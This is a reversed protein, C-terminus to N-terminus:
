SLTELALAAQLALNMIQDYQCSSRGTSTSCTQGTLQMGVRSPWTRASMGSSTANFASSALWSLSCSRVVARQLFVSTLAVPQCMRCQGACHLASAGILLPKRRPGPMLLAKQLTLPWNGSLLAAQLAPDTFLVGVTSKNCAQLPIDPSAKLAMDPTAGGAPAAEPCSSAESASTSLLWGPSMAMGALHLDRQM